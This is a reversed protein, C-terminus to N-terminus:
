MNIYKFLFIIPYNTDTHLNTFILFYVYIYIHLYLIIYNYRRVIGM